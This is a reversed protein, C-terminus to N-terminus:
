TRRAHRGFRSFRVYRNIHFHASQRLDLPLPKARSQSFVWSRTIQSQDIYISHYEPKTSNMIRSTAEIQTNQSSFYKKPCKWIKFIKRQFSCYNYFSIEDQVELNRQSFFFFAFHLISQCYLCLCCNFIKVHDYKCEGDLSPFLFLWGWWTLIGHWNVIYKSRFANEIHM